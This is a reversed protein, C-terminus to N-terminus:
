EGEARTVRQLWSEFHARNRREAPSAPAPPVTQPLVPAEAVADARAQREIEAILGAVDAREPHREHIQRLVGLAKERYGQALYIEALTKTAFAQREAAPPAPAALAAQDGPAAAAEGAAVPPAVPDPAPPAPPAPPEALAAPPAAQELAPASASEAAPPPAPPASAPRAAGRLEALRHEAGEDTPDLEVVRALLAAAHECEGAALALDASQKLAVLNDPDLGLVRAFAERAAAPEGGDLRCRGLIVLASVYEPHDALGAQLIELAEELRGAKRYLDALPAFVRSRPSLEYKRLYYAIQKDLTEGSELM